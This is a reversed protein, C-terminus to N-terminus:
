EADEEVRFEQMENYAFIFGRYFNDTNTDVGASTALIDKADQVRTQCAEYFARTVPDLQWNRFDNLTM